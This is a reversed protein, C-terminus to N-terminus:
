RCHPSAHFSLIRDAPVPMTAFPFIEFSANELLLGLAMVTVVDDAEFWQTVNRCLLDEYTRGAINRPCSLLQLCAVCLRLAHLPSM